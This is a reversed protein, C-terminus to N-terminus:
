YNNCTGAISNITGLYQQAMPNAQLQDVTQRREVPGSALFNRVIAQVVPSTNFDQAAAPQQADLAAVVQDYTCTTNVVADFPAANAVGVSAPLAVAVLGVGLALQVKARKTM